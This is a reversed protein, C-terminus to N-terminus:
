GEPEEAGPRCAGGAGGMPGFQSVLQGFNQTGRIWIADDDDDDLEGGDPADQGSFSCISAARHDKIPTTRQNNGTIEGAGAAGALSVAAAASVLAGALLKKIDM